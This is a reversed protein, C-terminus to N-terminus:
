CGSDEDMEGNPLTCNHQPGGRVTKQKVSPIVWRPWILLSGSATSAWLIVLAQVIEATLLVM